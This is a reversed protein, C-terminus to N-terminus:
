RKVAKGVNVIAAGVKKQAGGVAAKAKGATEDVRGQTKLKDSGSVDGVAQKINVQRANKPGTSAQSFPARWVQLPGHSFTSERFLLHDPDQPLRILLGDRLDGLLVADTRLGQVGPPFVEARQLGGIHFPEPVELLLIAPQLLDHGVQREVDVDQFLHSSFFPLRV